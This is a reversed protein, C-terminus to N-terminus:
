RSSAPLSFIDLLLSYINGITTHSALEDIPLRPVVGLLPLSMFHALEAGNTGTSADAKAPSSLVIGDLKIDAVLAARITAGLDHLVGLRDAAILLTRALPLERQLDRAFDANLASDNLPSFLGGATEILLLDPGESLKAVRAVIKAVDIKRGERRAALHPSLPEALCYEPLHKV